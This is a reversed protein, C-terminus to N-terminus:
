LLIFNWLRWSLAGKKRDRPTSIIACGCGLKEQGEAGRYRLVERGRRRGPGRVGRRRLRNQNEAQESTMAGLRTGM